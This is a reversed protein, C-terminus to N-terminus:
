SRLSALIGATEQLYLVMPKTQQFMKEAAPMPVKGADIGRGANVVFIVQAKDTFYLRINRFVIATIRKSDIGNQFFGIGAVVFQIKQEFRHMPHRNRFVDTIFPYFFGPFHNGVIDFGNALYGILDAIRADTIINQCKFLDVPYSRTLIFAFPCGRM